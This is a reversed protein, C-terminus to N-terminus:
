RCCNQTRLQTAMPRDEPNMSDPDVGQQDAKARQAADIEGELPTGLDIDAYAGIIQMRKITSPKMFSRHTVRLANALDTASNNVILNEADVSESVPRGRLPCFYVKKFATGGFGLM